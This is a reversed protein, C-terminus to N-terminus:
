IKDWVLAFFISGESGFRRHWIWVWIGGGVLAEGSCFGEFVQGVWGRGSGLGFLRINICWINFKGFITNVGELISVNTNRHAPSIRSKHGKSETPRSLPDM